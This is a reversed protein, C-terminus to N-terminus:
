APGTRIPSGSRRHRPRARRPRGRCRRRGLRRAAAHDLGHRVDGLRPHEPARRPLRGVRAPPGRHAPDPVVRRAPRRPRRRHDAAAADGAGDPSCIWVDIPGGAGPAEVLRMEVPAFRRQWASGITSRTTLRPRADGTDPWDVTALEMARTGDTALAALTAAVSRWATPRPRRGAPSPAPMSRGLRTSPGAPRPTSGSAAPIRGAATASSPWSRRTTSGGRARGAPSWGAPRTPTSGTASPGTSTRRCTSRHPPARATRPPSCSPRASTTSRSPPCSASPRSGDGTPRSRRPPEGLRRAGPARPARASRGDARRRRGGLDHDAAALDPRPDTTRRHLRDDPRRSALRHRRRGLRREHGPAPGRRARRRRGVPAVLSRPPGGRGLALRDPHRPPGRATTTRAASRPGSPASSGARRTSRPPSRSGRGTRRGPSRASAATAAPRATSAADRRRDVPRAPRRAQRRRGALVPRLRRTPWRALGAAPHRPRRRQDPGAATAVARGDELPIALLHGHYRIGRIVRRVVVATRGDAALDLEEVVVQRRIDAATM